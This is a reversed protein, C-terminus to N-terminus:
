ERRLADMPEIRSARRAPLYAVLYGVTAAALLAAFVMWIPTSFLSFKETVGRTASLYNLSANIIFGTIIALTIGLVAGSLSLLLSETVFLRRVDRRRAGLAVMLGIERVRELLAITLTNFIGIIAIFM